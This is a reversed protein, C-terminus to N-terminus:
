DKKFIRCSLEFIHISITAGIPTKGRKPPNSSGKEQGEASSPNPNKIQSLSYTSASFKRWQQCPSFANVSRVVSM